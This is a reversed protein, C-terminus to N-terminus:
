EYRLAEIPKLQAARYAPYVGGFIGLVLAILLAKALFELSFPVDLPFPSVASLGKVGLVGLMIGFIGGFLTIILSEKMVMFIVMNERWGVARLVGIERTREMVSMVMTNMVAIGGVIVAIVSILNSFGVIMKIDEQNEAAESSTSVDLKPFRTEIQKKIKETDELKNLKIEFLTVNDGYDAIKQADKLVIVGSNDDMPVGTEFIAVVEFKEGMIEIKQGIKLNMSDAVEKGMMIKKSDDPKLGRGKIVRFHKISFKTPDFGYMIFFPRDEFTTFAIVVPSVSKIGSIKEIDERYELDVSSIVMDAAEKQSAVLDARGGGVLSTTLNMLGQSIMMLAVVLAIGVGIGLITLAARTKRRFVNRFAM